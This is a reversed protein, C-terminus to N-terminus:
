RIKHKIAVDEFEGPGHCIACSEVGAPSTQSDIHRRSRPRTM